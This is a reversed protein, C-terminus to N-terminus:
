FTTWQVIDNQDFSKPLSDVYAKNRDISTKGLGDCTKCIEIKNKVFSEGSGLCEDCEVLKSNKM